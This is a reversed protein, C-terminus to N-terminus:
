CIRGHKVEKFTKNQYSHNKNWEDREKKGLSVVPHEVLIQSRAIRNGHVNDHYPLKRKDIVLVPEELLIVKL